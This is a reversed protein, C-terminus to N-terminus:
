KPQSKEWTALPSYVVRLGGQGEALMQVSLAFGDQEKWVEAFACVGQSKRGVSRVAAGVFPFSSICNELM